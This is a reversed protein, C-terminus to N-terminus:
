VPSVNVFKSSSTFNKKNWRQGLILSGLFLKFLHNRGVNTFNVCIHDLKITYLKSKKCIWDFLLLSAPNTNHNNPHFWYNPQSLGQTISTVRQLLLQLMRTKHTIWRILHCIVCRILHCIKHSSLHRIKHSSLHAALCHWAAPGLHLSIFVPACWAEPNTRESLHPQLPLTTLNGSPTTARLYM